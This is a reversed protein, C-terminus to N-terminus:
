SSNLRTSKRDEFAEGDGAAEALEGLESRAMEIEMGPRAADVDLREGLGEGAKAGLGTEYRARAGLWRGAGHELEGALGAQLQGRQHRPAGALHRQRRKGAANGDVDGDEVAGTREDTMRTLQRSMRPPVASAAWSAAAETARKPSLRRTMEESAPRVPRGAIGGPSTRM